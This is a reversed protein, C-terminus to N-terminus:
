VACPSTNIRDVLQYLWGRTLALGTGPAEPPQPATPLGMVVTLVVDTLLGDPNLTITSTSNGNLSSLAVVFRNEVIAPFCQVRSNHKDAYYTDECEHPRVSAQVSESMLQQM